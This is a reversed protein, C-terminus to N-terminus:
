LLFVSDFVHAEGFGVKAPGDSSIFSATNVDGLLLCDLGNEFFVVHVVAVGFGRRCWLLWVLVDLVLGGREGVFEGFM